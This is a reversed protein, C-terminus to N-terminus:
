SAAQRAKIRKVLNFVIAALFLSACIVACVFPIISFGFLFSVFFLSASLTLYRVIKDRALANRFSAFRARAPKEFRRKPVAGLSAFLKYVDDGIVTKLEFDKVDVTASPPLKCFVVAKSAGSRKARAIIRAAQPEDLAKGFAFFAATKGVYVANAKVTAEVNKARLGDALKKAPYGEREFMFDYFMEETRASMERESNKRHGIVGLMFFACATKSAASFAALETTTYY